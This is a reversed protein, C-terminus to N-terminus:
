ARAPEDYSGFPDHHASCLATRSWNWVIPAAVAFASGCAGLRTIATPLEIPPSILASSACCPAPCM